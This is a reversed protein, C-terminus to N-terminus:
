CYEKLGLTLHKIPAHVRLLIFYICSIIIYEKYLYNYIKLLIFIHFLNNINFLLLKIFKFRLLAMEELSFFVLGAFM